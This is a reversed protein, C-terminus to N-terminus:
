QGITVITRFTLNIREQAVKNDNPLCHQWYKQTTGQMLLVSGHELVLSVKQKSQKHRFCFKRAAGLSISAITGDELLDKEGDSHWSVGERGDHYLNLLCSNFSAGTIAETEIKLKELEQTWALAQKSVGSYTYTCPKNAYWAVKRKTVVHKGFMRLEDQKWAIRARFCEFYADAVESPFMIGLYKAVGDAPLLNKGLQTPDLRTM